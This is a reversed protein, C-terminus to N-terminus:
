PCRQWQAAPVPSSNVPQCVPACVPACQQQPAAYYAPPSASQHGCWRDAWRCCGTNGVSLAVVALWFLKKGM